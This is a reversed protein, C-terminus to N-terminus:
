KNTRATTKKFAMQTAISCKPCGCHSLSKRRLYILGNLTYAQIKQDLANFLTNDVVHILDTFALKVLGYTNM